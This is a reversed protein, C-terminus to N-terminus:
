TTEEHRAAVAPVFDAMWDAVTQGNIVERREGTKGVNARARVRMAADTYTQGRGIDVLAGRETLRPYPV